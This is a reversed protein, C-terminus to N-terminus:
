AKESQYWKIKKTRKRESSLNSELNNAKRKKLFQVEFDDMENITEAKKLQKSEKRNLSKEKKFKRKIVEKKEARQEAKLTKGRQRLDKRVEYMKRNMKPLQVKEHEKLPRSKVGMFPFDDDTDIVEDILTTQEASSKSRKLKKNLIAKNEIAFEVIPRKHASFTEPNNNIRRLAKLAHKHEKFGVFGFGKSTGFKGESKLYNRMVKAETIVAKKDNVAQKFIQRLKADNIEPPLNHICLRTPSVFYLVNQLLKRKRQELTIRKSLDAQSVGEAAPSNPYILGERALYLNRKDRIKTNKLAKAKEVNDKSVALCLNLQRGDIFFMDSEDESNSKQICTEADEKRKFKAFATGKSHGTLPDETIVCYELPGIKSLIEELSETTTEFSVNKIFVTRGENVDNSKKKLKPAKSEKEDTENNEGESDDSNNTEKSAISETEEDPLAEEDSEIEKHEELEELSLQKDEEAVQSDNSISALYKEKPLAFDIAVIRDLFQKANMEKITKYATTFKDFTVFAFGRMRGKENKPITVDKITGYKSIWEKLSDETAKFSLNRVIVKRKMQQKLLKNEKRKAKRKEKNIPIVKSKEAKSSTFKLKLVNDRIKVTRKLANDADADFAFTVYGVGKSQGSEKDTVVYCRKVPGIDSFIDGLEENSVDKPLNHVFITKSTIM